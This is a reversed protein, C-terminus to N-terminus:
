RLMRQVVTHYDQVQQQYIDGTGPGRFGVHLERVRGSRDIFLTTPYAGFDDLYAHLQSATYKENTSGCFLVTFTIGYRDKYLALNKRGLAPDDSIEFSLAVVEFGQPGYTRYLDQLLPAADMCNHCWTGMIDILLAKGKFREDTSRVTDGNITIGSFPFPQKPRKVRTQPGGLVAASGKPRPELLFAQPRGSRGYLLARWARADRRLELVSAQWGTFRSLTVNDGDQTRAFLGLDGDAAIITGFVSDGRTWFTATQTTDIGDKSEQFVRYTGVLAYAHPTDQDSPSVIRSTPSAEFANKATDKRYRYFNGRWTTGDWIGLMASRYESFIFALSDGSHRIEPIATREDGNVFFGTAQEDALNLTFHFPLQKGDVLTMTGTWTANPPLPESCGAFLFLFLPVIFSSRIPFRM